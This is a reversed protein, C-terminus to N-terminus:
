FTHYTMIDLFDSTAGSPTNTYIVACCDENAQFSLAASETFIGFLIFAVVYHKKSFYPKPYCLYNLLMIFIVLGVLTATIGLGIWAQGRQEMGCFQSYNDSCLTSYDYNFSYSSTVSQVSQYGCEYDVITFDYGEYYDAEVAVLQDVSLAVIVLIWAVFFMCVIYKMCGSCKKMDCDCEEGVEQPQRQPQPKPKQGVSVTSVPQVNFQPIVKTTIITSDSVRRPTEQYVKSEPIMRLFAILDARSNV